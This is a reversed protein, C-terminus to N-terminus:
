NHVNYSHYRFNNCNRKLIRNTYSCLPQLNTYHNLRIIDEKTKADYLPIIHDIDWSFKEVNAIGNINGYNSWNMWPEFKSEIHTKFDDFSCGLIKCTKSDKSYGRKKFSSSISRRISCKLNYLDDSIKRKKEHVNRNTKNKLKYQKKYEKIHTKNEEQWKKLKDKHKARYNKNYEDVSEKNLKKNRKAREKCLEINSLYWNRKYEKIEEKTM